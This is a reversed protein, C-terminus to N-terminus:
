QGGTPYVVDEEKRSGFYEWVRRHLGPKESSWQWCRNENLSIDAHPDFDAEKLIECRTKYQRDQIAGHWLHLIPGEAYFVSGKVGAYFREMWKLVDILQARSFYTALLSRSSEFKFYGFMAIAAVADGGGLINRDYLGATKLLSRRAAWAHGMAGAIMTQGPDQIRTYAAGYDMNNGRHSDPVSGCRLYQESEPPLFWSQHFPQVVVYEQLLRNTEKIWNDNEFLIDADIWAVKDCDDPLEEVAINLLREKQWLVSSSRVRIIRDALSGELAHADEGFALEVILLKAGQKRVRESVLRLHDLKNSYRAPNFYTTVVWLEQPLAAPERPIRRGLTQPQSGDNKM